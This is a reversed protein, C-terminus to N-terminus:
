LNSVLICIQNLVYSVQTEPDPNNWGNECKGARDM